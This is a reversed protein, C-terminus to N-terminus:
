AGGVWRVCGVGLVWVGLVCRDRGRRCRMSEPCRVRFLASRPGYRWRRLRHPLTKLVHPIQNRLRVRQPRQGMRNSPPSQKTRDISRDARHTTPQTPPPKSASTSYLLLRLTSESLPIHPLRRARKHRLLASAHFPQLSHRCHANSARHLRPLHLRLPLQPRLKNHQIRTLQM